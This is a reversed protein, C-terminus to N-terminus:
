NDAWLEGRFTLGDGAPRGCFPCFYILNGGEIDGSPDPLIYVVRETEARAWTQEILAGDKVMQPLDTCSCQEVENM